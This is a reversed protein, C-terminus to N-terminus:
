RLLQEEEDEESLDNIEDILDEVNPSKIDNSQTTDENTPNDDKEQTGCGNDSDNLELDNEDEDLDQVDIDDEEQEEELEEEEELKMEEALAAVM